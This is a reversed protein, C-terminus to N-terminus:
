RAEAYRLLKTGSEPVTKTRRQRQVFPVTVHEVNVTSRTVYDKTKALLDTYEEDETRAHSVASPVHRSSMAAAPHRFAGGTQALEARQSPDPVSTLGASPFIPPLLYSHLSNGRDPILGLPRQSSHPAYRSKKFVDGPRPHRELSGLRVGALFAAINEAREDSSNQELGDDEKARKSVRVCDVFPLRVTETAMTSSCQLCRAGGEKNIYPIRFKVFVLRFKLIRCLHETAYVQRDKFAPKRSAPLANATTLRLSIYIFLAEPQM